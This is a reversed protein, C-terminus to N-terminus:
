ESQYICEDIADEFAEKIKADVDKENASLIDDASLEIEDAMNLLAENIKADNLSSIEKVANKAARCLIATSSLNEM